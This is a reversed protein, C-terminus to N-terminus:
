EVLLMKKFVESEVQAMVVYVGKPLNSIDLLDSPAKQAFVQQGLQNYILVNELSKGKSELYILGKSPNPYIAFGGHEFQVNVTRSYKFNGDLDKEKLRYYNMGNLPTSDLFQYDNGSLIDGGKSAVFGISAWHFGDSSREMDFGVFNVEAGTEWKLAVQKGRKYGTFSIMSVPLPNAPEIIFAKTQMPALQVVEQFVNDKIENDGDVDATIERILLDGALGYEAGNVDFSFELDDTMSANVFVFAIGDESKWLSKQLQSITVMRIHDSWNDPELGDWDSTITPIPNPNIPNVTPPYKMEGFSMFNRLKYRMRGLSRIFPRAKEESNPDSAFWTTFRGPQIGFSFSQAYQTYFSPDDYISTVTTTGFMQVKGAYIASYAPVINPQDWAGVMVGDVVDLLYDCGGEVTVFRDSPVNNNDHINQILDHYGERWFSGGGLTHGHKDENDNISKGMCEKVDAHAVQDLYLGKAGLATNSMEIAKAEVIGQWTPQTPCQVGFYQDVGDSNKFNQWFYDNGDNDLNERKTADPYGTEDWSDLDIDYMRGNFYPMFYMGQDQLNQIEAKMGAITNYNLEPYNDDFPGGWGSYFHHGIVIDDGMLDICNQAESAIADATRTYAANGGSAPVYGNDYFWIGVKGIEAQREQRAASELPWYSANNSVWEKYILAAAYWDGNFLDLEFHGPFEWDNGKLSKNPIPTLCDVKVGGDTDHASFTKTSASSDHFGFYIDAVGGYYAMFQMSAIYGSPYQGTYNIGNNAPDAFIQGSYSPILFEGGDGKININPFSVNMLSHNEGVGTVSLDWESKSGNTKITVVAELTNPINAVDHNSFTITCDKGGNSLVVEKNGWDWLSPVYVEENNDLKRLYLSFLSSVVTTNLIEIENKKIHTIEYGKSGGAIDITIKLDGTGITTQGNGYFYFAFLAFILLTTKKM